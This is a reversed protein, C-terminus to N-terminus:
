CACVVAAATAVTDGGGDGPNPFTYNPALLVLTDGSFSFSAGEFDAVTEGNITLDYASAMSAGLIAVISVPLLIKKM